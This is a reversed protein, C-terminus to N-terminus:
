ATVPEGARARERLGATMFAIAAVSQVAVLAAVVPVYGDADLVPGAALLALPGLVTTGVIIVSWMKARLARPTRLLFITHIPPNIIGNVFGSAALVGVLALPPIDLLLLWLPAIM